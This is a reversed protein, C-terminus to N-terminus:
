FKLKEILNYKKLPMPSSVSSLTTGTAQSDEITDDGESLAFVITCTKLASTPSASLVPMSLIQTFISFRCMLLYLNNYLNKYLNGILM